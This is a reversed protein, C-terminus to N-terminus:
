RLEAAAQAIAGLQLGPPYAGEEKIQKIAADSIRLNMKLAIAKVIDGRDIVGSVAGAPSLVTVRALSQNELMQIIEVISTSEQVTAVETLPHVIDLLTRTEWESREIRQLDEANVVGRYRGNSAAYYIPARVDSILYDDAFKRLPMGADLVRFDRTMADEAKVKLMAEQLETIRDYASANQVVFWGILAAWLGTGAGLGPMRVLGFVVATGWVIAITGLFRGIKAATRIGKIQSGTLKWVITKLVQGGDLPLAPIMNFLTLLLNLAALDRVMVSLPMETNPAFVTVLTLLLFIAFSVAPGAIAVQFAKGPTKPEQAISAIGGFFFLTISQVQIGQFKAVLSHGLEHLLVSAFLALAMAFGTGWAVPTGWDPYRVQWRLANGLTVIVLIFFWSPDILLPIGFLSGVRWGSQM